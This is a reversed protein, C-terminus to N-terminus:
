RTFPAPWGDEVDEGSFEGALVRRGVATRGPAIVPAPSPPQIPGGAPLTSATSPPPTPRPARFAAFVFLRVDGAPVHRRGGRRTTTANDTASTTATPPRSVQANHGSGSGSGRARSYRSTVAQRSVPADPTCLGSAAGTQDPICSADTSVRTM